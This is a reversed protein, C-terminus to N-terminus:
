KRKEPLRDPDFFHEATLGRAAFYARCKQLAKQEIKYIMRRSCGLLDAVEQQSMVDDDLRRASM